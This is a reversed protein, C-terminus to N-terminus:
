QLPNEAKCCEVLPKTAIAELQVSQLLEKWAESIHSDNPRDRYLQALIMLTEQWVKARAYVEAQKLPETAQELKRKQESTLETREIIGEVFEKPSPSETNCILRFDWWYEKGPEL